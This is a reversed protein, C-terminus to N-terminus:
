EGDVRDGQSMIESLSPVRKARRELGIAQALRLERDVLQLYASLLARTKGKNTTPQGAMRLFVSERLLTAESFASVLRTLTAPLDGGLDRTVDAEIAAKAPTLADAMQESRTGTKLANSEVTEVADRVIDSVAPGLERSLEPSTQAEDSTSDLDTM